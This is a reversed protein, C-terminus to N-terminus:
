YWGHFSFLVSWLRWPLVNRLNRFWNLMTCVHKVINSFVKLFWFWLCSMLRKNWVLSGLMCLERFDFVCLNGFWNLMTFVHKVINPFFGQSVLVLLMIHVTQELGIIWACWIERSKFVRCSWVLLANHLCTRRHESPGDPFLFWLISLCAHCSGLSVFVSM